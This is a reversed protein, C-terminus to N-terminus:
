TKPSHYLFDNEKKKIKKAKTANDHHAIIVTTMFIFTIFCIRLEM